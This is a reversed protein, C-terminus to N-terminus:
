KKIKQIVDSLFSWFVSSSFNKIGIANIKKLVSAWRV